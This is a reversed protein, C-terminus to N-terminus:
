NWQVCQDLTWSPVMDYGGGGDSDDSHNENPNDVYVDDEETEEDDSQVYQEDIDMPPQSSSAGPDRSSIHVIADDMGRGLLPADSATSCRPDSATSMSRAFRRRSSSHGLAAEEADAWTLEEGAFVPDETEVLWPHEDFLDYEVSIPDYFGPKEMRQQFRQRLKQNYNVYVLDNMKKVALRNRRTSHLQEFVSWNRECGSASCTLGLVRLALRQLATEGMDAGYSQWWDIPRRESRQRVVMDRSFIGLSNKYRDLLGCIKDQETPTPILREVVDMFGPMHENFAVNRDQPPVSFFTGPNLLFGASHLPSSMMKGPGWRTDILDIVQKYLRPNGDFNRMIQEKAKEMADCLYGMAPKEDGDVLRLVQVMPQSAKLAKVVNTWFGSQLITEAVETSIEKKKKNKIWSANPDNYEPSVVFARLKDKKLFLRQLSLFATAFRTVAPRLLNGEIAIRMRKLLMASSNFHKIIKRALAITKLFLKGIDELILDICHAACPTWFLRRRKQQLMRGALVYAAANDTVVQVVHEEGIEGVVKDMLKYLYDATHSHGSADVSRMFMTGTPCNVLFNIISRGSRDTWGDTMLTCGYTAWDQRYSELIGRTYDIEQKLCSDSVEHYTMPKLGPGYTSTASIAEKWEPTRVTNFSIGCRYFLRSWKQNITKRDEKRFTREITTQQPGSVVDKGRGCFPGWLRQKQRKRGPVPRSRSTPTPASGSGSGTELDFEINERDVYDDLCVNENQLTRSNRIMYATIDQKISDPVKDCPRANSGPTHALHQKHRAIGGRTEKGCLECVICNKDNASIYHATNWGPDNTRTPRLDDYSEHHMPLSTGPVYAM